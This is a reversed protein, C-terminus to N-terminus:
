CWFIYSFIIKGKSIGLSTFLGIEGREEDIMRTMTNMCMLLAVLIFFIPFVSAIADVKTASTYTRCSEPVFLYVMLALIIFRVAQM